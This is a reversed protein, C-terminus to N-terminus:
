QTPSDTTVFMHEISCSHTTGDRTGTGELNTILELDLRDGLAASRAPPQAMVGASGREVEVGAGVREVGLQGVREVGEPRVGPGLDGSGLCGDGDLARRQCGEQEVELRVETSGGELQGLVLEALVEDVEAVADVEELQAESGQCRDEGPGVLVVALARGGRDVPDAVVAAHGAMGRSPGHGGAILHVTQGGAEGGEVGALDAEGVEGQEGPDGTGELTHGAVATTSRVAQWALGPHIRVAFRGTIGGVTVGPRRDVGGRVGTGIRGIGGRGGERGGGEVLPHEEVEGPLVRDAAEHVVAGMGAVGLVRGRDELLVDAVGLAVGEVEDGALVAAAHGDPADEVVHGSGGEAAGHEREGSGGAVAVLPGPRAAEGIGEDLDGATGEVQFRDALSTGVELEGGRHLRHHAELSCGPTLELEGARDGGGGHLPQGAVGADPADQEAGLGRDDLHTPGLAEGATRRAIGEPCPRADALPRAAVTRHGAGVGVVEDVPTVPAPGIEFVEDM